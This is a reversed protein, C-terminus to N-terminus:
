SLIYDFTEPLMRFPLSMFYSLRSIYNKLFLIILILLDYRFHAKFEEKTLNPIVHSVYNLVRPVHRRVNCDKIIELEEDDSESSSDSSSDIIERMIVVAIMLIKRNDNNYYTVQEGQKM